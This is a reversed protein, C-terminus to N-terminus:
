AYATRQAIFADFVRAVDKTSLDPSVPTKDLDGIANEFGTFVHFNQRIAELAHSIDSFTEVSQSVGPSPLQLSLLIVLVLLTSSKRMLSNSSRIM